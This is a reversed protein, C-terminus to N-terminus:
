VELYLSGGRTQRHNLLPVVSDNQSVANEGLTSFSKSQPDINSQNRDQGNKSSSFSNAGSSSQRPNQDLSSSPSHDNVRVETLNYGRKQMADTLSSRENGLMQRVHNNTASLSAQIDQGITKVTLVISGLDKPQLVITVSQTSKSAALLQVRDATQQIIAKSTESGLQSPVTAVQVTSHITLPSAQPIEFPLGNAINTTTSSGKTQSLQDFNSGRNSSSSNSSSDQLLQAESGQVEVVKSNQSGSNHSSTAATNIVDKSGGNVTANSIEQGILTAQSQASAESPTSVPNSKESSQVLIKSDPISPLGKSIPPQANVGSTQESKTIVDIGSSPFKGNSPMQVIPLVTSPENVGLKASSIMSNSNPIENKIQFKPNLGLKGSSLDPNLTSALHGSPNSSSIKSIPSRFNEITPLQSISTEISSPNVNLLQDSPIFTQAREQQNTPISVRLPNAFLTSSHLSDTAPANRPDIGSAGLQIQNAEVAVQNSSPLSSSGGIASAIQSKAIPSGSINADLVTPNLGAIPSFATLQQSIAAVASDRKGLNLYSSYFHLRSKTARSLPDLKTSRAIPENIKVEGISKKTPPPDPPKIPPGSTLKFETPNLILSKTSNQNGSNQSEISLAQIIKSFNSGQDSSVASLKPSGNGHAENNGSPQVKVLSDLLNQTAMVMLDTIPM